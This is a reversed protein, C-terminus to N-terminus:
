NDGSQQMRRQHEIAFKRRLLGGPDDPVRELWQELAQQKEQEAQDVERVGKADPKADKPPHEGEKAQQEAIQQDIEDKLKQQQEESASKGQEDKPTGEDKSDKSDAGSQQDQKSQDQEGDKSQQDKSEQDQDSKDQEGDQKSQDDGPKHPPDKKDSKDGKDGSKTNKDSQQQQKLFAEVSDRNAKADAHDPQRKLASDYSAIADEYKGAKALANGENYAADANRGQAFAETAADFKGNRYAASGRWEPSTAVEQAQAANGEALAAAAQQDSRQWLDRFSLAQAPASPLAFVLAVTMLWGRRFGILVLPLLALLLWAGRDRFRESTALGGDNKAFDTESKSSPLGRLDRADASLAIYRGGGAQAVAQLRAEEVKPLVIQGNSDKMFGGEPLAVPAGAATGVGLVSVTMGQERASRAAAVADDSVSDAILVIQGSQLGAQRILNIATAIARSTSNGRVPMVDPELADVLNRVTNADDTLPAVVFADGAYAILATQTDGSQNLLDDIRFRARALRNPQVDTALMSPTLGLAIVRASEGRYLAAPEREWAPGAASVCGIIWAITALWWVGRSGRVAVPDILHPLLAADVVQRWGGGDARARRWVLAFLPLALIALLLWPRLFHFDALFTATNM